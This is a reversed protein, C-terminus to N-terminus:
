NKISLNKIFNRNRLFNVFSLIHFTRFWAFLFSRWTQRGHRFDALLYTLVATNIQLKSNPYKKAFFVFCKILIKRTEIGNSSIGIGTRYVGYNKEDIFRAYGNGIQEVNAFYDVLEFEPLSFNKVSRRYMKSSNAGIAIYQLISDRYFRIKGLNKINKLPGEKQSGDALETLMRHWVINCQPEGDLIDVQAQLKGQFYYDDGDVHAIYTGQAQKHAYSFNEYAGINKKHFIPKVLNIYKESFEKIISQTSDTSCDDCVLVDFEFDTVQDVISQLCQRIYKEQNYAVVCVSVKPNSKNNQM